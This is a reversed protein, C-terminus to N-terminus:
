GHAGPCPGQGTGGPKRPAHEHSRRARRARRGYAVSLGLIPLLSPWVPASRPGGAPPAVGCGGGSRAPASPGADSPGADSAGADLPPDPPEVPQEHLWLVRPTCLADTCSGEGPCDSDRACRRLELVQGAPLSSLETEVGDAWRVRLGDVTAADGLGLHVELPVGTLYSRGALLDRRITEGGVHAVVSATLALEDPVLVLDLANGASATRNSLLRLPAGQNGVVLDQDGDRDYDFAMLARSDDTADLPTGEVRTFSGSGDNTWFLGPTMYLPSLGGLWFDVFEDFGTVLALDLDGDNDVDFLETGWGWYGDDIGLSAAVEEFRLEGTDSWLNRYFANGPGTGLIDWSDTIKTVYIDQDLDGDVDGVAVGMGNGEDGVGTEASVNEFFRGDVNRYLKDEGHDVAVFLEPYRDDDLNLFVASFHQDSGAELGVQSTVDEFQFDGLNRYLRSTATWGMGGGGFRPYGSVYIDIRGDGDYDGFGLSGHLYGTVDFGSGHTVDTFAVGGENRFIRSASVGMDDQENLLVLDRWGDRDLDIFQATRSLGEDEISPMSVPRFMAVGSELQNQFLRNAQGFTGLLYVDLDGDGDYDGVAVGSGLNSALVENLISDETLWDSTPRECVWILGTAEARDIFAPVSQAGAARPAVLHWM